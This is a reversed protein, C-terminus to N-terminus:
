ARATSDSKRPKSTRREYRNEIRRVTTIAGRAGTSKAENTSERCPESGGTRSWDRMAPINVRFQGGIKRAWPVGSAMLAYAANKGIKFFAQVDDRCGIEHEDTM